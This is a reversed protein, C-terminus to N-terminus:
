RAVTVPMSMRKGGCALTLVYMGPAIPAKMEGETRKLRTTFVRKGAISFLGIDIDGGTFRNGLPFRVMTGGFNFKVTHIASSVSGSMRDVIATEVSTIYVAGGEGIAVFRDNGCTVSYFDSKVKPSCDTWAYGDPSRLITGGDGAAVFRNNGFAVSILRNSTGTLQRRWRAGDPSTMVTGSDGVAVFLGNGFTVQWLTSTCKETKSWLLGDTSFYFSSKQEDTADINVAVFLGNGNCISYFDAPENEPSRDAWEKGNTSTFITGRTGVAVSTGNGCTAAILYDGTEVTQSTWSVGDPSTLIKNSGATLFIGNGFSVSWLLIDPIDAARGFWDISDPSAVITGLQGTAVFRGNGYAISFYAEGVEPLTGCSNWKLQGFSDSNFFCLLSLLGTSVIVSRKHPIIGM